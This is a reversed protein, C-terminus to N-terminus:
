EDIRITHKNTELDFKKKLLTVFIEIGELKLSKYKGADILDYSESLAEKICNSFVKGLEKIGANYGNKYSVEYATFKDM